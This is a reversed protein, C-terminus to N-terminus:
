FVTVEIETLENNIYKSSIWKGEIKFDFFWHYYFRDSWYFHQDKIAEIMTPTLKYQSIIKM